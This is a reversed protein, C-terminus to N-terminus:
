ERKKPAIFLAIQGHQVYMTHESQPECVIGRETLLCEVERSKIETANLFEVAEMKKTLMLDIVVAQVTVLMRRHKEEKQILIKAPFQYHSGFADVATVTTEYSGEPMDDTLWSGGDIFIQPPSESVIAKTKWSLPFKLKFLYPSTPKAPDRKPFIFASAILAIEM